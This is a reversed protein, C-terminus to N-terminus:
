DDKDALMNYFVAAAAAIGAVILVAQFELSGSSRYSAGVVLSAILTASGLVIIQYTNLRLEGRYLANARIRGFLNVLHM